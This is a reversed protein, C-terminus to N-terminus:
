HHHEQEHSKHHSDTSKIAEPVRKVGLGHRYVNEAGLYGTVLLSSNAILLYIVFWYKVKGIQTRFFIIVAILYLLFTLLASNRHLSMAIHGAADHEVSGFAQLGSVVAFLTSVGGIYLCWKATALVENRVKSFIPIYISLLLITSISLPAISFHVIFPHLNPIIEIM